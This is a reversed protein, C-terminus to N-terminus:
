WSLFSLLRSYTLATRQWLRACRNVVESRRNGSAMSWFQKRNRRRPRLTSAGFPLLVVAGAIITLPGIIGNGIEGGQTGAGDALDHSFNYSRFPGVEGNDFTQKWSVVPAAAGFHPVPIIDGTETFLESYAVPDLGSLNLETAANGSTNVEVWMGLTALATM